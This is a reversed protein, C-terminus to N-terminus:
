EYGRFQEPLARDIKFANDGVSFFEIAEWNDMIVNLYTRARDIYYKALTENGCEKCYIASKHCDQFWKIYYRALAKSFRM